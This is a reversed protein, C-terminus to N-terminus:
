SRWTKTNGYYMGNCYEPMHGVFRAQSIDLRDIRYRILAAVQMWGRKGNSTEPKAFLYEVSDHRRAPVRFDRHFPDLVSALAAKEAESDASRRSICFGGSQGAAAQTKGVSRPGM